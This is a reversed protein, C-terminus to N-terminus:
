ELMEMIIHSLKILYGKSMNESWNCEIKKGYKNIARELVNKPVSIVLMENNNNPLVFSYYKAKSVSLGSPEFKKTKKYFCSTEVYINKTDKWKYDTKVEITEMISKLLNEGIQGKKYQIDWDSLKNTM